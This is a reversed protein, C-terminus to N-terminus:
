RHSPLCHHERRPLGDRVHRLHTPTATPSVHDVLIAPGYERSLGKVSDSHLRTGVTELTRRHQELASSHGRPARADVEGQPPNSAQTRRAEFSFATAAADHRPCNGTGPWVLSVVAPLEDAGLTAIGDRAGHAAPRATFRCLAGLWCRSVRGQKCRRVLSGLRSVPREQGLSSESSMVSSAGSMRALHPRDATERRNPPVSIANVRSNM